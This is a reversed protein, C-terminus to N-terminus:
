EEVVYDAFLPSSWAMEGDTQVVRLWYPNIGPLPAPDTFSFEASRSGNPDPALSVTVKRNLPGIEIEKPGSALDGMRFAFSINEAPAYSMRGGYVARSILTLSLALRLEAEESGDVELILGSGYGCAVSHWCLGDGTLDHIHSRPSDFRIKELLEISGGAVKLSGDWAVGSYSMPGSAGEWLIRVRNSAMGLELPHDYVKDLGRFLEVSELPATGIVSASISPASHTRYETGMMHGDSDVRLFIRAGTTGYARRSKLAELIGGISLEKAYVAALGGKAYRRDIYGPYEAGPRGTYGDSGGVFGLRYRRRLADKLFWEFTGHTSTVEIAPELNPEHYQLNAEYGGVHPTIVVDAYRYAQYVDLIHPLDTDIDSCDVISPLHRNRRIPQDHRRFYINHHGGQETEASWEFGPLPVFRGPAYFAREAKQQLAYEETSLRDDNAQYGVFDIGSVDRAYRFFDPIKGPDHLQGGHPDGWYLTYPGEEEVCLIPNSETSLEGKNEKVTIRKVGTAKCRCGELQWVGNDEASFTHEEAPLEVDTAELYVTGRYTSSPNGWADQARILLRFPADLPVLSPTLTVLTVPNGGVISVHPSHPLTVFQGDGEVDVSFWFYRKEEVFTQARTGPGGESRDGLVLRVEEGPALPRGKLTLTMGRVNEVVVALRVGDPAHVTMYNEGGPDGLQPMGWDTDSDTHIRICGGAAVGDTGAVYTLQWTGYSGAIVPKDPAITAYGYRERLGGDAM